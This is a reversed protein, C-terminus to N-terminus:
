HTARPEAQTVQAARAAASEILRQGADWVKTLLGRRILERAITDPGARRINVPTTVTATKGAAKKTRAQSKKMAM